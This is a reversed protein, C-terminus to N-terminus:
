AATADVTFLMRATEATSDATMMPLTRPQQLAGPHLVAIVTELPVVATWGSVATLHSPDPRLRTAPLDLM